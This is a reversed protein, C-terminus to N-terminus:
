RPLTPKQARVSVLLEFEPDVFALEGPTLEERALGYLFAASTLVNGYTMVRVSERSFVDGFLRKASLSTFGWHYGWTGEEDRTMKSICPVTVLAVGGPKLMKELTRVVAAVDYTLQLTQTLVICDFLNEPLDQTRSLDGVMTVGPKMESIHLVDSQTVRDGGFMKTYWNNDIELVRGRIDTSHDSLFREIYYRDIPQGRDFGWDRSIPSTRRLGGWRVTGLPPWAGQRSLWQRLPRPIVRQALSRLMQLM